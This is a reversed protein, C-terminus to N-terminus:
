PGVVAEHILDEIQNKLAEGTAAQDEVILYAGYRDDLDLWPLAGWAGPDSIRKTDRDIWWGMGYGADPGGADGDYTSSIRDAHMTDLSAQSLIQNDGCRGGRLHMLLLKAYDGTTIHAEGEVTPNASPAVSSPDGGFAM